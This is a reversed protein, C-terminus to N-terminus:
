SATASGTAGAGLLDQLSRKAAWQVEPSPRQAAARLADIGERGGLDGLLLAAFRATTEDGSRAAQALAPIAPHGVYRLARQAFYAQPSDAPARLAAILAPVARPGLESVSHSAEAGVRGDPDNFAALLAPISASVSAADQRFGLGRAAALRVDPVPDKLAAITAGEAAPSAIPALARIAGARVIPDSSKAAVLLAPVSPPGINTLAEAAESRLEESFSNLLKVLDPVARPDALRGLAVVTEGRINPNERLVKLLPLIAAQTNEPPMRGLAGVAKLQTNEYNLMEILNPIASIAKPDHQADLIGIATLQVDEVTAPAIVKAPDPHLFPVVYPIAPTKLDTLIAAANNRADPHYLEHAVLAIDGKDPQKPTAFKDDKLVDQIGSGIADDSSEIAQIAPSQGDKNKSYLVVQPGLEVLKAGAVQKIPEDPDKRFQIIETAADPTGVEALARVAALRVSPLQGQLQEAVQGRNMMAQAAAKRAAPDSGKIDRLWGSRVRWSNIALAAVIVAIATFIYLSAKSGEGEPTETQASMGVM